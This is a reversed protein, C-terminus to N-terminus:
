NNIEAGDLPIHKMVDILKKDARWAWLGMVVFFVFFIMFSSLGFIDVGTIKELYNIFQM